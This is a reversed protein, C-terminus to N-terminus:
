SSRIVACRWTPSATGQLGVVQGRVLCFWTVCVSRWLEVRRRHRCVETKFVPLWQGAETQRCIELFPDSKSMVEVNKLSSASIQMTLVERASSMEESVLTVQM